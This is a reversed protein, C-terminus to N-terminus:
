YSCCHRRYRRCCCSVETMPRVPLMLRALALLPAPVLVPVLVPLEPVLVLEPELPLSLVGAQRVLCQM